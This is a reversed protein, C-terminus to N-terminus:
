GKKLAYEERSIMYELVILTLINFSLGILAEFQVKYFIFFQTLFISLLVSYRFFQFSELRSEKLKLLGLSVLIVSISTSLLEGIEIIDLKRDGVGPFLSSTFFLVFAALISIIIFQLKNINIMKSRYVSYALIIASFGSVLVVLYTNILSVFQTLSVFSSTVFFLVVAKYFLPFEIIKRYFNKVLNELKDFKTIKGKPLTDIELLLSHLDNVLPNEQDSKRLYKMAKMREDHNLDAVTADKLVEFANALYETKTYKSHSEIFHTALYILIFIIYILSVTPEFFYDNDSTLLKGLEDIFTGFGIGGLVAAIRYIRKSLFSFLIVLSAMMFFGGFLMHAVHFGNGGIQPYGTLYLYFRIVLISSISSVMFIEILNGAEINRIFLNKITMHTQRSIIIPFTEYM